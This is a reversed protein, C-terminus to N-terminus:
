EDKGLLWEATLARTVYLGKVNPVVAALKAAEAEVGKLRHFAESLGLETLRAKHIRTLTAHGDGGLLSLQNQNRVTICFACYDDIELQPRLKASSILESVTPQLIRLNKVILGPDIFGHPDPKDFLQIAWGLFSAAEGRWHAEPQLERPLGGHPSELIERHIAEMRNSLGHQELWPLLRVCFEKTRPHETVELSARFGLAGCVIAQAAVERDTRRM